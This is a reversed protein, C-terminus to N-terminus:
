PKVGSSFSLCFEFVRSDFLGMQTLSSPSRLDKVSKANPSDQKPRACAPPQRLPNRSRQSRGEDGGCGRLVQRPEGRRVFESMQVNGPSEPNDESRFRSFSDSFLAASTFGQVRIPM